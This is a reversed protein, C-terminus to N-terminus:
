SYWYCYYYYYNGQCLNYAYAHMSVALALSMSCAEFHLAVSSYQVDCSSRQCCTSILFRTPLVILYRQVILWPSYVWIIMIIQVYRCSSLRSGSSHPRRFWPHDSCALSVLDPISPRRWPNTDPLCGWVWCSSAPSFVTSAAQWALMPCCHAYALGHVPRYTM